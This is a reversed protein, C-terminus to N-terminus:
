QNLYSAEMARVLNTMAVYFPTAIGEERAYEVVKGRGLIWRYTGDKQRLRFEINWKAGKQALCDIIHKKAWARTIEAM